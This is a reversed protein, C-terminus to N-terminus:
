SRCSLSICRQQRILSRLAGPEVALAAAADAFRERPQGSRPEHRCTGAAAVAASSAAELQGPLEYAARGHGVWLHAPGSM